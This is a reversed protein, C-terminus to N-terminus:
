VLMFTLTQVENKGAAPFPVKTCATARMHTVSGGRANGGLTAEESLFARAAWKPDVKAGGADTTPFPVCEGVNLTTKLSLREVSIVNGAAGSGAVMTIKGGGVTEELNMLKMDSSPSPLVYYTKGSTLGTVTAMGGCDTVPHGSCDTYVVATGSALGHNVSFTLEGDTNIVASTTLPNPWAACTGSRAWETELNAVKLFLFLFLFLAHSCPLASSRSLLLALSRSPPVFHSVFLWLFILPICGEYM